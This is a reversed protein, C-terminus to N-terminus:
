GGSNVFASVIFNVIAYSSLITAIGIVAWLMTNKGKEIQNTNGRSTLWLFGGYVFAVLAFIGTIGIFYNIVRSALLPINGHIELPDEIGFVPNIPTLLSIILLSFIIKKAM